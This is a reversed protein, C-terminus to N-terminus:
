GEDGNTPQGRILGPQHLLGLRKAEQYVDVVGVKFFVLLRALARVPEPGTLAELEAQAKMVARLEQGSEM